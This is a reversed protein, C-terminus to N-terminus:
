QNVRPVVMDAETPTAFTAPMGGGSVTASLVSQSSETWSEEARTRRWAQFRDENLWHDGYLEGARKLPGFLLFVSVWISWSELNLHFGSTYLDFGVLMIITCFTRVCKGVLKNVLYKRYEVRDKERALREAGQRRNAEMEGAAQLVDEASIGLEAATQLLRERSFGRESGGRVALRLIEQVEDESYFREAM